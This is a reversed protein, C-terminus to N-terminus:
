KKPKRTTSNRNRAKKRDAERLKMAGAFIEQLGEDGAFEEVAWRWGKQGRSGLVHARLSSMEAELKALRQELQETTM